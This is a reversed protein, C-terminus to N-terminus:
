NTAKSAFFLPSGEVVSKDPVRASLNEIGEIVRAVWVFRGVCIPPAIPLKPWVVM